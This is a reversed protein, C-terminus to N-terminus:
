GRPDFRSRKLYLAEGVRRMWALEDAQMPGREWADLAEQFQAPNAPGTMCVDVAPHSLVFRYCDAATPVREGPPLKSGSLLQRWSTATFVVVGARQAPPPLAPFFDREAGTHVANYRVHVIDFDGSSAFAAGLVRNHTSVALRRVLGQERLQRARELIAPSVPKNWMGLLLVDAYDMRLKRLGSELRRTLQWALRSYSQLVLTFRDRKPALSRLGDGFSPRRITGWYFYNVGHEFAMEVSRADAGYSASIGLRAITLGTRGFTSHKGNDM